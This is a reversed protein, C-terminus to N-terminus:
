ATPCPLSHPWQCGMWGCTYRLWAVGVRQGVEIRRCGAGLKDVVGVIQHGPIIPLSMEPLEGEIVHLDTRCIGCCKVKIRVESASPEPDPLDALQLPSGEIPGISKLIMARM